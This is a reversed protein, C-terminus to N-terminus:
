ELNPYYKERHINQANPLNNITDLKLKPKEITPKWEGGNLNNIKKEHM